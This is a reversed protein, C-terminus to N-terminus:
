CALAPSAAEAPLQNDLWQLIETVYGHWHPSQLLLHIGDPEFRYTLDASRQLHQRLREISVAPVSTDQGGYMLMVPVYVGPALDSARDALRILGWYADMRVSRHVLPDTALRRASDPRFRPDDGSRPVDLKYGPALTAAAGILVNWGYRMAIGERVAPAALILGALCAPPETAAVNIAVAGGLSEGLVFVPVGHRQWAIDIVTRLSHELRAHGPWRGAGPTAGFGPQDYSYFAIGHQEFWPGLHEFAARYDGHNHLGIVAARPPYDPVWEMLADPM